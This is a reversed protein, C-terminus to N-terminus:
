GNDAGGDMKAGCNPCYKSGYPDKNDYEGCESCSGDPNWRGHRVPEVEAAPQRKVYRKLTQGIVYGMVNNKMASDINDILSGLEIYEAMTLVKKGTAVDM